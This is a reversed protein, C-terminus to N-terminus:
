ANINPSGPIRWARLTFGEMEVTGTGTGLEASAQSGELSSGSFDAIKLSLEADLLFNRPEVDCHIVNASHLLQLGEAAERAWQLRQRIPIKDNYTSLYDKLCGNPMYEMTLVCEEPNWDIIKLLRSHPGLKKYIESEITM